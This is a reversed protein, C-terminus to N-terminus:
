IAVLIAVILPYVPISIPISLWLNSYRKRILTEVSKAAMHANGLVMPRGSLIYIYAYYQITPFPFDHWNKAAGDDQGM